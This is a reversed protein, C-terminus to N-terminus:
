TGSVTLSSTGTSTIAASSGSMSLSAVTLARQMNLTASNITLASSSNGLTGSSTVVLTGASITTAGGYTNAASLTLSGAGLKTLAYNGSIINSLSINNAGG